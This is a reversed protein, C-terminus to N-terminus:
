FLKRQTNKPINLNPLGKLVVSASVNSLEKPELKHLGGGYVRGESLLNEISIRNLNKWITKLCNPNNNILQKLFPKPYLLLYVNTATAYSNNLIFRFPKGGNKQKSRGMYTCLIPAPPRKEQSYWPKRHSCLYKKHVNENIGYKVYKFLDPFSQELEDQSLSCDLLYLPPTNNPYGNKDTSIEDVKLFRPSPLIPKLFEQPLRHENIQENNLIFYKNNGTALGRKIIFLDSLKLNHEVKRVDLLPFRTWKHEEILENKSYKKVIIPKNLNSGFSFEVKYNLPPSINKFWVVTSSVLADDFQVNEPDFRHIRLLKVKNLLYEKVAVGYNVDMFESPILWGAIADKDMWSHTLLLFYCYLGTLGNTDIGTREKVLCKLKQKDSNNIHHHRVYPPNCIILNYREKKIPSYELTFDTNRIELPHNQWIEMSPKAYHPDLEIGVAKQIQQSKFTSILASYFSGTGFAPDLFKIPTGNPILKKSYKLIENALRSPTAFQGLRNRTEQTKQGDLNSQIELRKNEIMANM